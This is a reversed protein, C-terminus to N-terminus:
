INIFKFGKSFKLALRIVFILERIKVKGKGCQVDFRFIALYRGKPVHAFTAIM